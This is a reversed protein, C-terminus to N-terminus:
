SKASDELAKRQKRRLIWVYGINFLILVVVVGGLIVLIRNRHKERYYEEELDRFHHSPPSHPGRPGMYCDNKARNLDVITEEKYKSATAEMLFGESTDLTDDYAARKEPKRLCDYAEKVEMFLETDSNRRWRLRKDKPKSMRDPHLENTKRIFASQIEEMTADRKVGLVDYYNHKKPLYSVSRRLISLAGRLHTAFLM